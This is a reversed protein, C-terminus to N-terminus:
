LAYRDPPRRSAKYRKVGTYVAIAVALGICGFVAALSGLVGAVIRLGVGQGVALVTEPGSVGEPYAASLLYTGPQGIHFDMFSVGSRGGVSYSSSSVSRSLEVPAGTAKNQLSCELGPIDQAMSYIRSGVVSQYEHFITYKGPKPLSVEATGPVVVQQLREGIGSLSKWLIVGFLGWGSLFIVAALGYLWRGPRIAQENM